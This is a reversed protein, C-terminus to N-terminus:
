APRRNRRLSNRQAETTGGWIGMVNAKLAYALCDFKLECGGCVSKAQQISPYSSGIIRGQYDETDVSFFLEPDVEACAAEGEFVFKPIEANLSAKSAM